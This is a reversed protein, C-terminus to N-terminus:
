RGGQEGTRQRRDERRQAAVPNVSSEMLDHLAEQVLDAHPVDRLVVPRDLGTNVIVDGSRFLMQLGSRRVTVDNGRSHLSEQRTRVFVGQRLVLRRTTVTYHRSSWRIVPLLVGSILLVGAGALVIADAWGPELRGVLFVTAGGLVILLVVPGTLARGHPRLRAVVRESPQASPASGTGTTSTM